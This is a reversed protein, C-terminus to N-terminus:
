AGPVAQKKEASLHSSSPHDQPGRMMALKNAHNRQRVAPASIKIVKRSKKQAVHAAQPKEAALHSSSPHVGAFARASPKCDSGSCQCLGPAMFQPLIRCLRTKNNFERSEVGAFGDLSAGTDIFTDKKGLEKWARYMALRGGFGASVLFIVNEHPWKASSEKIAATLNSVKDAADTGDIFIATNLTKDLKSLHPPGIVVVTRDALAKFATPVITQPLPGYNGSGAPQELGTLDLYFLSTLFGSFKTHLSHQELFSGFPRGVGPRCLFFEGVLVFLNSDDQSGFDQFDNALEHCQESYNSYDMGEINHGKGQLCFVDGDGIRMFAFPRRDLLMRAVDVTTEKRIHKSMAPPICSRGPNGYSRGLYRSAAAFWSRGHMLDHTLAAETASEFSAEAAFKVASVHYSLLALLAWPRTPAM